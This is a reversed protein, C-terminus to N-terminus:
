GAGSLTFQAPTDREEFTRPNKQWPRSEEDSWVESLTFFGTMELM